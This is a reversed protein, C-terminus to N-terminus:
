LTKRPKKQQVLLGAVILILGVFTSWYITEGVFFHIFVLSVFPSIFILNAIKSSNTTLKMAKLWFVYTVGMEFFGVYISGLFGYWDFILAHSSLIMYLIILVFGSVFSIFLGVVPDLRSKTNFIWYFAWLITSLFALIVGQASSFQFSLLEGHTSIVLVGFYCIIGALFDYISLKHKLIFFSLYSLTLAWTYNIPQAEQAPLLDYAKFLVLYYLFPNLVGLLSARLYATKPYQRLLPLKKEKLIIMFLMVISAGVSYFLLQTPTFYALSLKFASAVTSWLLVSLLGFLYAKKQNSNIIM